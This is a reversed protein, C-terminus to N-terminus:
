PRLANGLIHPSTPLAFRSEPFCFHELQQITFGAGVIAAATDRSPHCGGGFAPWVTVDLLRQVRYLGWTRARVHELFRLQGGPRLVRFIEGLAGPQDGVSCLVLSAVAADFSADDAPLQAAVGDVVDVPTSAQRAARRAIARLHPEPEVALVRAVEPPYHGFNLGNGAGVEIVRGSLGALLQRRRDAIGGRDMSPSVRAYFRAFVPHSVTNKPM